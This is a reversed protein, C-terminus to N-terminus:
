KKSVFYVIKNVNKWISKKGKELNNFLKDQQKESFDFSKKLLNDTKNQLTEIKEISTIVAKETKELAFDNLKVLNKTGKQISITKM